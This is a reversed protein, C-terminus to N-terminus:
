EPTEKDKDKAAKKAAKKEAKEAEKREMYEGARGWQSGNKKSKPMAEVGSMEIVKSKDVLTRTVETIRDGTALRHDTLTETRKIDNEREKITPAPQHKV